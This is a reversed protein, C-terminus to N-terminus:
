RFRQKRKVMRTVEDEDRLRGNRIDIIIHSIAIECVNYKTSLKRALKVLDTTRVDPNEKDATTETM